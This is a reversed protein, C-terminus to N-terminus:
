IGELDTVLLYGISSDARKVGVYMGSNDTSPVAQGLAMVQEGKKLLSVAPALPAAKMPAALMGVNRKVKNMAGPQLVPPKSHLYYYAGAAASGALVLLGLM